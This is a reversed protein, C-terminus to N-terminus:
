LFRGEIKVELRRERSRNKLEEFQIQTIGEVNRLDDVYNLIANISTDSVILQFRDATMEFSLWQVQGQGIDAMAVISNVRPQDARTLGQRRELFGVHELTREQLAELRAITQSEQELFSEIRKSEAEFQRSQYLYFGWFVVMLVISLVLSRKLWKRALCLYDYQQLVSGHHSFWEAQREQELFQSGSLETNAENLPDESDVWYWATLEGQANFAAEMSWDEFAIQCTKSALVQSKQLFFWVQVHEPYRAHLDELQEEMEHSYCAYNVVKEGFHMQCFLDEFNLGYQQKLIQDIEQGAQAETVHFLFFHPSLLVRVQCDQFHYGLLDILGALPDDLWSGKREAVGLQRWSKPEVWLHVVEPEAPQQKIRIM